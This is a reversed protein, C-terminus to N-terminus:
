KAHPHIRTSGFGTPKDYKWTGILRFVDPVFKNGNSDFEYMMVLKGEQFVGEQIETGKENFRKTIGNQKDNKYESTKDLTGNERYLQVIGSILGNSDFSGEMRLKGNPYYSHALSRKGDKVEVINQRYTKGTEKDVESFVVTGTVKSGGESYTYEKTKPDISVKAGDIEVKACSCFLITALLLLTAIRIFSPFHPMQLLPSESAKTAFVSAISASLRENM